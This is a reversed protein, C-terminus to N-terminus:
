EALEGAAQELADRASLLASAEKVGRENLRYFCRRPGVDDPAQVEWEEEAWEAEALRRLINYVTAGQLGTRKKIEYGHIEAGNLHEQYLVKLVSLTTETIRLIAM